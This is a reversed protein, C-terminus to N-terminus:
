KFSPARKELESLFPRRETFHITKMGARQARECNGAHDDVFLIDEGRIELLRLVHDFLAPDRKSKGLYFSNYVRDFHRFFRDRENLEELWNTQDSLIGLL